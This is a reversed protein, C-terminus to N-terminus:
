NEEDSEVPAPMGSIAPMEPMENITPIDIISPIDIIEPEGEMEPALVFIWYDARSIGDPLPALLDDVPIVLVSVCDADPLNREIRSFTGLYDALHFAGATHYVLSEPNKRSASSISEAMTEDKMVQAEYFTRIKDETIGMAAMGPMMMTASFAEWYANEPAEFTMAIFPTEEVTFEANNFGNMAVRSALPRPINSAIVPLGNERSFEIMPRYDTQYNGWPRSEALFEDESIEGALYSDLLNQVDREFMEMSLIVDGRHRYIGELMALEIQHTAPDDHNEGLTVIDATACRSLLGEFDIVTMTRADIVRHPLIVTDAFAPMAWVLSICITLLLITKKM